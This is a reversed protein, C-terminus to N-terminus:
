YIKVYSKEDNKELELSITYSGQHLVAVEEILEGSFRANSSYSCITGDGMVFYYNNSTNEDLVHNAPESVGNLPMSGFVAFRLSDPFNVQITVLSGSDAYEFMNEAESIIKEVQNKVIESQSNEVMNYISYSFVGIICGTTIIAVMLYIPMGIVALDNRILM